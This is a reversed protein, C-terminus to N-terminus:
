MAGRAYWELWELAEDVGRAVGAAWHCQEFTRIWRRQAASVASPPAKDRKLELALGVFHGSPRVVLLDPVGPRVGAKELAWAQRQSSRENPCHFFHDRYFPSQRMWAVVTRQVQAETPISRKPAM